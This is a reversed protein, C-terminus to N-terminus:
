LHTKKLNNQGNFASLIFCTQWLKNNIDSVTVPRRSPARGAHAHWQNGHRRPSTVTGAWTSSHHTPPGLTPNHSQFPFSSALRTESWALSGDSTSRCSTVSVQSWILQKVSQIIISKTSFTISLNIPSSFLRPRLKLFNLKKQWSHLFWFTEMTTQTFSCVLSLRTQWNLDM